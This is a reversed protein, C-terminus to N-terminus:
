WLIRDLGYEEPMQMEMGFRPLQPKSKADKNTELSQKVRLAGEYTMSYDLTLIVEM